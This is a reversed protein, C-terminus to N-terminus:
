LALRTNAGLQSGGEELQWYDTVDVMPSLTWTCYLRRDKFLLDVAQIRFLKNVGTTAEVITVVDGPERALAHLMHTSSYNALFSVTEVATFPDKWYPLLYLGVNQGFTPDSQYALDLDVPSEGYANVSTADRTETAVPDYDYIGYGRAQAWFYGSVSASVVYKVGESGPSPTFTLSGSLDTGSGDPNSTFYYDTGLTMAPQGAAGLMGYGSVRTALQAPDSYQGFVTIAAAGADIQLSDNMAYLVVRDGSTQDYRRPHTTARIVNIVAERSMTAPMGEMSDTLTVQSANYPPGVLQNRSIFALTGAAGASTGGRIVILGLDSMALRQFESIASYSVNAGAAPAFPYTDAGTGFSTANPQKPMAALITTLVQDARVGLSSPVGALLFRSAEDMWDVASCMSVLEFKGATPQIRDLTGHFKYYTLGVSTVQLRVKMGLAFGSRKSPHSPSYYGIVGGSNAANALTFELIGPSAVRDNPGSGRIGYGCRITHEGSRVDSLVDVFGAGFDMELKMSTYAVSM